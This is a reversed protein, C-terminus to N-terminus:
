RDEENDPYKKFYKGFDEFSIVVYQAIVKSGFAGMYGKSLMDDEYNPMETHVMLLAKGDAVAASDNVVLVNVEDNRKIHMIELDRVRTLISTGKGTNQVVYNLSDGSVESYYLEGRRYKGCASPLMATIMLIIVPLCFKKTAM